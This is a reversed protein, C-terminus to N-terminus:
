LGTPNGYTNTYNKIRNISTNIYIPMAGRYENTLTPGYKFWSIKELFDKFDWSNVDLHPKM